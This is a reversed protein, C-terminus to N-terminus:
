KAALADLNHVYKDISFDEARAHANGSIRKREDPNMVSIEKLVEALKDTDGKDILFGNVRDTLIETM